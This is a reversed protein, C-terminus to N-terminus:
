TLPYVEEYHAWLSVRIRDFRENLVQYIAFLEVSHCSVIKEVCSVEAGDLVGLRHDAEFRTHAQVAVAHCPLRDSLLEVLVLITDSYAQQCHIVLLM